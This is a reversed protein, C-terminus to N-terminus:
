GAGTSKLSEGAARGGQMSMRLAAELEGEDDDTEVPNDEESDLCVVQDDRDQEVEHEGADATLDVYADKSGGQSAGGGGGWGRRQKQPAVTGEGARGERAQQLSAAIALQMAADSGDFHRRQQQQQVAPAKSHM